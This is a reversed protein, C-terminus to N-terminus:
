SPVGSYLKYEFYYSFWWSRAFRRDGEGELQLEM